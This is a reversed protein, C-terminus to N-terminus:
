VKVRVSKSGFIAPRLYHDIVPTTANMILVSFAAGEPYLGFSRILCILLGCGLGFIWQGKASTPSTVMDTAIFFATLLTAGSFVQVLPSLYTEPSYWHLLTAPVVLGIIVACPLVYTIVRKWILFLGGLLLLLASTEGWSGAHNGMFLSAISNIEADHSLPTAATVGDVSQSLWAASVQLQGSVMEPSSTMYWDTLEAPFCILLFVRALMAPNFLNNGLGGYAQKGLTVAFISGMAVVWWPTAPPLSMALIWGTLLASGDGANRLDAKRMVLMIFETIYATACSVLLVIAASIGFQYIGYFSAPVLAAIVLYMLTASSNGEDTHPGAVTKFSVM